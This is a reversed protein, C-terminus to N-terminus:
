KDLWRNERPLALQRAYSIGFRMGASIGRDMYVVIMDASEYWSLARSMGLRRQDRVTDDLVQTYLLHSAFPAEGRNLSDQLCRRAYEVNLDRDVGAYPSEIIVRM